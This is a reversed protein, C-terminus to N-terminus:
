QIALVTNADEWLEELRYYARQEASLVHVIVDGYDLIIWGALANGETRESRVGTDGLVENLTRAIARLQRENEGSCIVFYDTFPSTDHVDLV